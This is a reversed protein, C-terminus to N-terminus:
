CEYWNCLFISLISCCMCLFGLMETSALGPKDLRCGQELYGGVDVNELGQYPHAGFTFIEWLLVGYSWQLFTSFCLWLSVLCCCCQFHPKWASQSKLSASLPSSAPCYTCYTNEQHQKKRAHLDMTQGILISPSKSWRM